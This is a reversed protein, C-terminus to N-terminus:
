VYWFRGAQLWGDVLMIIDCLIGFGTNGFGLRWWAGLLAEDGM